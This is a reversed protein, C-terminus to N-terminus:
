VEIEKLEFGISELKVTKGAAIPASLCRMSEATTLNPVAERRFQFSGDLYIYRKKKDYRYSATACKSVNIEMGSWEVFQHLIQLMQNIGDESESVFIVDDAYAQVTTKVLLEKKARVDGGQVPTCFTRDRAGGLEERAERL